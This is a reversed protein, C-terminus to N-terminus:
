SDGLWKTFKEKLDMDLIDLAGIHYNGLESSHAPRYIRFCCMKTGEPVNRRVAIAFGEDSDNRGEILLADLSKESVYAPQFEQQSFREIEGGTLAKYVIELAKAVPGEYNGSIIGIKM